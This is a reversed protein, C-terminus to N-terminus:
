AVVIKSELDVWGADEFIDCADGDSAAIVVIDSVVVAISAIVVKTEMVVGGTDVVRAAVM